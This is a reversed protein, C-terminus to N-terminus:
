ALGIGVVEAVPGKAPELGEVHMQMVIIPVSQRLRYLLFEIEGPMRIDLVHDLDTVNHRDVRRKVRFRSFRKM